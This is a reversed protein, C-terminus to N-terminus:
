FLFGEFFRVFKGGELQDGGVTFGGQFLEQGSRIIQLPLAAGLVDVVLCPLPTEAGGEAMGGAVGELQAGAREWVGRGDRQDGGGSLANTSLGYSRYTAAVLETEM